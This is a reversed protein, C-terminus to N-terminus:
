DREIFAHSLEGVPHLEQAAGVLEEFESARSRPVNREYFEGRATSVNFQFMGKYLTAKKGSM